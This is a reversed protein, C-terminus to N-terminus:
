RGLLKNVVQDEEEEGRAEEIPYDIMMQNQQPPPEISEVFDRAKGTNTWFLPM